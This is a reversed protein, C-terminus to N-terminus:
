HYKVETSLFLAFRPRSVHEIVRFKIHFCNNKSLTTEEEEELQIPQFEKISTM